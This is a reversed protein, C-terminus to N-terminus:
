LSSFIFNKRSIDLTQRNTKPSRRVKAPMRSYVKKIMDLDFVM